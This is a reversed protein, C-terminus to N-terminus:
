LKGLLFMGRLMIEHLTDQTFMKLYFLKKIANVLTRKKLMGLIRRDEECLLDEYLNSYEQIQDRLMKWWDDRILFFKIMWIIHQFTGMVLPSEIYNNGHRRYKMLSRPDYIVKGLGQCMAYMWFDHYKINRPIKRILIDRAQRNFVCTSSTSVDNSVLCNQFSINQVRPKGCIYNLHEDCIDYGSCYLVPIRDDAQELMEVAIEVKNEPWVDDSDCFAYYEADGCLRLIEFYGGTAGLNKNGAIVHVQSYQEYERLVDLTHDTSRNDRIYLEINTYTQKLVSDVQEKIYKEGNFVSTLVKVLPMKGNM